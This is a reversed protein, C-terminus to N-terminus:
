RERQRRRVMEIFTRLARIWLALAVPSGPEPAPEPAPTIEVDTVIAAEGGRAFVLDDVEDRLMYFRGKRGYSPGWSNILEYAEATKVKGDDPDVYRFRPVYGIITYCHGGRVPGTARALFERTLRDMGAVWDTGLIVSGHSLVADRLQESNQAWAFGQIVGLRKAARLGGLVSAGSPFDLGMAHDESRALRYLRQAFEDGTVVQIPDASLEASTGFGVCAGEEGQDLPFEATLGWHTEVTDVGAPIGARRVSYRHSESPPSPIRDFTREPAPATM